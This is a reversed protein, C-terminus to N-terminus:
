FRFGIGLRFNNFGEGANFKTLDIYDYQLQIYWRDSMEYALGLNLNFGGLSGSDITSGTFVSYGLGLTPKLRESFPLNFESVLKPQFLFLNGYLNSRLFFPAELFYGGDVGLGLNVVNSKLFRYKLGFNIVIDSGGFGDSPVASFNTEVSWNKEQAIAEISVFLLLSFLLKFKM